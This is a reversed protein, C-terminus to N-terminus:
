GGTLLSIKLQINSERISAATASIKKKEKKNREKAKYSKGQQCQLDRARPTEKKGTKNQQKTKRWGNM